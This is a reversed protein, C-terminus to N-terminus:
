EADPHGRGRVRPSHGGHRSAHDPRDRALRGPAHRQADRSRPVSASPGGARAPPTRRVFRNECPFILLMLESPITEFNNFLFIESTPM